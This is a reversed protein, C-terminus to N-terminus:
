QKGWEPDFILKHATVEATAGCEAPPDLKRADESAAFLDTELIGSREQKQALQFYDGAKLEHMEILEPVYRWVQIRESM